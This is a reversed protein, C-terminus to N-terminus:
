QNFGESLRNVITDILTVYDVIGKEGGVSIPAIVVQAGTKEAVYRAAHDNYINENLIVKIKNENVLDVVEKLHAPSPPIGPKPELETVIEFGFRRAFYIWSQHFTILKEGKFPALTRSWSVMKEDITKDFEHLNNEFFLKNEPSLQTLRKAITSAIIKANLPDLWYHPNGSPHIDGMSRDVAPPIDLPTIGESADLYGPRGPQIDKNRAGELILSEYGIELDLGSRIFLDCRSAKLMYSPKAALFHYNENGKGLSDVKVYEGGIFETISKLDATTTLVNLSKAQATVVPGLTLVFVAFVFIIKKM